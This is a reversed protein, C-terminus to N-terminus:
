SKIREFVLPHDSDPDAVRLAIQGQLVELLLDGCVEERWGDMLRPAPGVRERFVYWRVLHKLDANTGVLQRSVEMEACRNALAIGLIQGLLQEHQKQKGPPPPPFQPWEEEPVALGRRVAELIKSASRKYRSQKMDRLAMLDRTNQPRRRSLEIILDDRLVSRTPRNRRAAESERWNWLERAVALDQPRLKHIGSLRRWNEPSDELAVGDIMRQFESEAWHLRNLRALQERQRDWIPLVYQVDELAYEIQRNSLPRRRWDTRTETGHVREGLVRDVLSSYGVPYSSTYLGEAIQIDVLRRPPRGCFDLCFRVEAQGAHVVVTTRDDAMIRWLPGLDAVTYPDVAATRERTALQLLGLEPRYTFESVFETDLAVLGADRVHACLDEFKNQDVILRGAM